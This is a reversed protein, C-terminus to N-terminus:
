CSIILTIFLSIDMIYNESFFNKNTNSKIEMNDHREELDFFKEKIPTATLLDKLDSSTTLLTPDFKSTNLSISFTEEFM